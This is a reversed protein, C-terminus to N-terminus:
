VFFARDVCHSFDCLLFVFMVFALESSFKFGVQDYASIAAVFMVATTDDFYHIWKRRETRQGGVDFMRCRSLCVYLFLSLGLCTNLEIPTKSCHHAHANKSFSSSFFFCSFNLFSLLASLILQVSFSLVFSRFRINEMLWETQVISTTKVRIRLVDEHTPLFNPKSIRDVNTIFSCEGM